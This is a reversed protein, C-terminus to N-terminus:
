KGAQFMVRRLAARDLAGSSIAEPCAKGFAIVAQELNMGLGNDTVLGRARAQAMLTTEAPQYIIDYVVARGHLAALAHSSEPGLPSATVDTTAHGVSTCNVLVDAEALLAATVPWPASGVGPGLRRAFDVAKSMTRNVLTLRGVRGALYAAVAVGAGGLGMVVARLGALGGTLRELEALAGAGDTNAGVLRAGDRYLANIAGIRGAEDEVRDVLALMAQKHPMTIAGGLFRPDSKLASVLDGLRGVGVDMPVMRADIHAAEFAANWLVPSRAGKSPSLGLIAAYRGTTLQVPNDILGPFLQENDPM